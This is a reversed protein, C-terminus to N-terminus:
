AATFRAKVGLGLLTEIQGAARMIQYIDLDGVTTNKLVYDALYKASDSEVGNKGCVIYAVSEAELEIMRHDMHPREPVHLAKDAGLHGLFLHALEHAITAFRVPPTHNRNLLM